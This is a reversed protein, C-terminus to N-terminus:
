STAIAEPHRQTLSTRALSFFAAQFEPDLPYMHGDGHRIHLRSQPIRAAQHRALEVPVFHDDDGQFLEVPVQIDTMSFGWDGHQTNLERALDRIGSRMAEIQDRLFESEQDPHSLVDRDRQGCAKLVESYYFGPVLRACLVFIALVARFLLGSWQALKPLPWGTRLLMDRGKPFEAFNTYGSMSAAFTIREPFCYTSALTVPGGSSWGFIGFREIQLADALWGIDRADNLLNRDPDPQSLGIGPRDPTIIRFGWEKAMEDFYRGELRCGPIGHCFILPYGEPDGYDTYALHRGDPLKVFYSPIWRAKDHM